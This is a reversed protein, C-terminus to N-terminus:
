LTPKCKEVLACIAKVSAFNEPLFDLPSVSIGYREELHEILTAVDLSDLYGEETFDVGEEFDHLPQIKKLLELIEEYM